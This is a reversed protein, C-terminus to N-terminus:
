EKTKLKKPAPTGLLAPVDDCLEINKGRSVLVLDGIKKALSLTTRTLHNNMELGHRVPMALAARGGMDITLTRGHHEARLANV